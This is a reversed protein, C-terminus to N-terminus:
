AFTSGNWGWYEAPCNSFEIYIREAGLQLQAGLLESISKSLSKAQATSLGISKCEIYALPESSGGFMMNRDGKVDIMVYREPKATENALLKSMESMLSSAKASDIVLNTRLKMFPM